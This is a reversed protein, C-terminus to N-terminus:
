FKGFIKGKVNKPRNFSIFQIIIYKYYIFCFPTSGFALINDGFGVSFILKKTNRGFGKKNM